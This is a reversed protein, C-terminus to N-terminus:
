NLRDVLWMMDCKKTYFVVLRIMFSIVNHFPSRCIGYGMINYPALPCFQVVYTSICLRASSRTRAILAVVCHNDVAM